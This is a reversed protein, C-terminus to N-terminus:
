TLAVCLMVILGLSQLRFCFLHSAPLIVRHSFTCTEKYLISSRVGSVRPFGLFLVPKEFNDESSWMCAPARTSVCVRMMRMVDSRLFCMALCRVRQCRYWFSMTVHEWAKSPEQACRETRHQSPM